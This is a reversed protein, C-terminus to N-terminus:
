VFPFSKLEEVWLYDNHVNLNINKWDKKIFMYFYMNKKFPIRDQIKNKECLLSHASKVEKFIIGFYSKYSGYSTQMQM